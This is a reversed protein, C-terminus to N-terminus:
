RIIHYPKPINEASGDMDAIVIGHTDKLQLNM